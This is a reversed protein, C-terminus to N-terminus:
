ALMFMYCIFDSFNYFMERNRCRGPLYLFYFSYYGICLLLWKCINKEFNNNKFIECCKSTNKSTERHINWINQSCSKYLVGRTAAESYMFWTLDFNAIWVRFIVLCLLGINKFYPTLDKRWYQLSLFFAFIYGM